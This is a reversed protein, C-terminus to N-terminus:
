VGLREALRKAEPLSMPSYGGRERPFVVNIRTPSVAKASIVHEHTALREAVQQAVSKTPKTM